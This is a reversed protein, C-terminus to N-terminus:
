KESVTLVAVRNLRNQSYPQTVSGRGETAIRGPDIGYSGALLDRVAQARAESLSQNYAETGTAADAYGTVTLRSQPHARMYAAVNEYGTEQMGYPKASDFPFRVSALTVPGGAAAKEVVKEVVRDRYLTDRVTRVVERVEPAPVRRYRIPSFRYTIGLSVSAMGEYTRGSIRGDFQDPLLAATGELNIDIHRCAAYKLTLSANGSMQNSSATGRHAIMRMYGVGVSPVVDFRRFERAGFLLNALSLRLEGRVNVYRLYYRYGGDSGVTVRDRVPDDTGYINGNDLPDATYLGSGTSYGNLRYGQATLRVGWVPTLWKGLGLSFTPTLRDKFALKGADRALLIQTGGGGEVYWNGRWDAGELPQRATQAALPMAALACAAAIICKITGM